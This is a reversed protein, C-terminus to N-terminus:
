SNFYVCLTKKPETKLTFHSLSHFSLFLIAVNDFFQCMAGLKESFGSDESCLRRLIIFQSVTHFEQRTISAFIFVVLFQSDICKYYVSTYLGNGEISIKIALLALFTNSIEWTYKLAPHFSNVATTFQSVEERISSTALYCYLVTNYRYNPKKNLGTIHGM